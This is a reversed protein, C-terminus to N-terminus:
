KRSLCFSFLDAQSSVLFSGLVSFYCLSLTLPTAFLIPSVWSQVPSPFHSARRRLTLAEGCELERGLAFFVSMNWHYVFLSLSLLSFPFTM